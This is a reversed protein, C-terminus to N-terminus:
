LTRPRIPWFSRIGLAYTPLRASRPDTYLCQSPGLSSLIYENLYVRLQSVNKEGTIEVKGGNGANGKTFDGVAQWDGRGDVGRHWGMFQACGQSLDFKMAVGDTNLVPNSTGQINSMTHTNIPIGIKFTESKHVIYLNLIPTPSLSVSCGLDPLTNGIGPTLFRTWTGISLVTIPILLVSAVFMLEQTARHAFHSKRDEDHVLQKLSDIGVTRKINM